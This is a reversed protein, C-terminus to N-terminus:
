KTLYSREESRKLWTLGYLLERCKAKPTIHEYMDLVAADYSLQMMLWTTHVDCATM